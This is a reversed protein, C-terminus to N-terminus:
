KKVSLGSYGIATSPTFMFSLSKPVEGTALMKWFAFSIMNPMFGKLVEVQLHARGFMQKLENPTIFLEYVHINPPANKVFWEVGKIAVLYSLFNRNFTHFFFLGGPVLVRSAEQIIREPETVHELIDM